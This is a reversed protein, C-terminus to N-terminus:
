QNDGQLHPTGLLDRGQAGLWAGGLGGLFQLLRTGRSRSRRLGSAVDAKSLPRTAPKATPQTPAAPPMSLYPMPVPIGHPTRLPLRKEPVFPKTTPSEAAPLGANLNGTLASMRGFHQKNTQRVRELLDADPTGASPPSTRYM